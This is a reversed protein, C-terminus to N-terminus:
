IYTLFLCRIQRLFYGKFPAHLCSRLNKGHIALRSSFNAFFVFSFLSAIGLPMIAFSLLPIAVVNAFVGVLTFRQFVYLILPATFLTAVLTSCVSQKLPRLLKKLSDLTKEFFDPSNQKKLLNKLKQQSEPLALLKPNRSPEFFACLGVVSAFSLQFSVSYLSEPFFLLIFLAAFAVSRLSVIKQDLLIATMALSVMLFSRLASFSSGSLLCYGFVIPLMLVAAIKKIPVRLALAPLVPLLRSLVGFVLWALLGMHLGSIALIHSLGSRTFNERMPLTLGSKDGTLLATGLPQVTQPLNKKIKQTLTVRKKQLGLFFKTKASPQEAHLALSDAQLLNEQFNKEQLRLVEKVRGFASIGKFYADFPADYGHMTLPFPPPFVDAVLQIQQFPEAKQLKKFPGQVRIKLSPPVPYPLGQIHTLILRRMLRPHSMTGRSVDEVAGIEGQFTVNELFFPFPETKLSVTRVQAAIFGLVFANALYLLFLCFVSFFYIKESTLKKKIRKKLFIAGVSLVGCVSGLILLTARPPPEFSLDFYTWIGLGVFIPIGLFWRQIEPGEKFLLSIKELKPVDGFKWPERKVTAKRLQRHM